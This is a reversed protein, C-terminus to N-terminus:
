ARARRVSMGIQESTRQALTGMYTQSMDFVMGTNIKEIVEPFYTGILNTLADIKDELGGSSMTVTASGLSLDELQAVGSEFDDLALLNQMAEGVQTQGDELANVFGQVTFDGIEEFVKSPSHIKLVSRAVRAAASAVASAARTVASSGGYIGNAMGISANYGITYYSKSYSGLGNVASGAVGVGANAASRSGASIGEAFSSADNLGSYYFTNYQNSASDAADLAINAASQNASRAQSNMGQIFSDMDTSGANHFLQKKGEATSAAGTALQAAANEVASKQANMGYVFAMMAVRGPAKFADASTQGAKMAANIVNNSANTVDNSQSSIGEVENNIMADASQTGVSGFDGVQAGLLGCLEMYAAKATPGGQAIGNSISTPVNIGAEQAIKMLESARGQLAANLQDTAAIVYQAPDEAEMGQQLGNALGDPIAIGCDRATQVAENFSDITTQTITKGDIEIIQMLGDFAASVDDWEAATSGLEDLGLKLALADLGMATSIEDQKSVAKMYTDMLNQVASTDHNRFADAIDQIVQSGDKGLNELYALFEPTIQAANDRIVALNDMYRTMGDLQSQMATLMKNMGNKENDAWEDFASVGFASEAADKVSDYAERIQKSSEVAAKRIAETASIAKKKNDIDTQTADASGKISDAEDDFAESTIGLEEELESILQEYVKILKSSEEQTSNAEEQADKLSLYKDEAATTAENVDYWGQGMDKFFGLIGGKNEEITEANEKIFENMGSQAATANATAEALGQYLGQLSSKYAELMMMKQANTVYTELQENTLKLEGTNENWADAIEPVTKAMDNIVSTIKHKTFEDQVVIVGEEADSMYGLAETVESIGEKSDGIKLFNKAVKDTKKDIKVFGGDALGDMEEKVTKKTEESAHALYGFGKDALGTLSTTMDSSPTSLDTETFQKCNELVESLFQKSTELKGVEMEANAVIGKSNELARTAEDNSKKIDEIFTELESKPADVLSTLGSLMDTALEVVQSLPGSFYNYMAIGLGEMASDFETLKGQLNDQMTEAMGQAAGDCHELEDKYGKINDVGENLLMNLGSVSRSTFTTSVAAAKEANGMGQTAADVDVLIDTLDRFNGQSDVVAVSTDGIQIAGDEMKATIDRMIAALKTGAESGKTGQNAFAELLATTTEMSQGSANMNAACNGFADGLQTVTTNSNAQAYAMQDAMKGAESASKGFASLYDTVMDSAEALDMESAAALSVVGDISDLMENTDWGALSMYSFGDAVQKASFKTTSGLERAKKSMQNLQDNSAGSLAGVKSMSAEFASGVEVVYKAADAAADAAAHLGSAAADILKAKVMSGLSVNVTEFGDGATKAEEGIQGLQEGAGDTSKELEAMADSTEDVAKETKATETEADYLKKQWDEVRNGATEYAREGKEVAEALGAVVREQKEIEDNTASGSKQMEELEATAKDLATRYESLQKGVSEYDDKAHSLGKRVAEEKKQSAELVDNLASHRKRLAEISDSQGDTQTEVLKLASKMTNLSKTCATVASKFEKEGDLAIVAGIKRAAM